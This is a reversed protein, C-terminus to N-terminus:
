LTVQDASLREYNFTLNITVFTSAWSEILAPFCYFTLDALRFHCQERYCYLFLPVDEVERSALDERVSILIGVIEHLTLGLKRVESNGAFDRWTNMLIEVLKDIWDFKGPFKMRICDLEDLKIWDWINICFECGAFGFKM